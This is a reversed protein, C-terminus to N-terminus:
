LKKILKIVDKLAQNYADAMDDGPCCNFKRALDWGESEGIEVGNIEELLETRAEKKIQECVDNWVVKVKQNELETRQQTLLKKVLNSFKKQYKTQGCKGCKGIKYDITKTECWCNKCLTLEKPKGIELVDNDGINEMFSKDITMKSKIIDKKTLLEKPKQKMQNLGMAVSLGCQILTGPGFSGVPNDVM